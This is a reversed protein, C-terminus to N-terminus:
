GQTVCLVDRHNIYRNHLPFWGNAWFDVDGGAAFFYFAVTGVSEPDTVTYGLEELLLRYVDAQFWGTDWTAQAMRVTTGKGPQLAGAIPACAGILLSLSPFVPMAACLRGRM